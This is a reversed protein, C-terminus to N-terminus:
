DTHSGVMLYMLRCTLYDAILHEKRKKLVEQKVRRGTRVPYCSVVSGGENWVRPKDTPRIGYGQVERKRNVSM